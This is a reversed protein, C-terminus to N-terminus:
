PSSDSFFTIKSSPNNVDMVNLHTNGTGIWAIKMYDFIAVAPAADSTEGLRTDGGFYV